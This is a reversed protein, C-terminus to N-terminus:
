RFRNNLYRTLMELTAREETGLADKAQVLGAYVRAAGEADNAAMKAKAEAVRWGGLEGSSAKVKQSVEKAVAGLLDMVVRRPALGDQLEDKPVTSPDFTAAFRQDFLVRDGSRLQVQLALDGGTKTPACAVVAGTVQVMPTPEAQSEVRASAAADLFTVGLEPTRDLYLSVRERAAQEVGRCREQLGPDRAIPAVYGRPAASLGLTRELSGIAAKAEANAPDLTLVRQYYVFAAGPRGGDAHSQASRLATSVLADRMLDMAAQAEPDNPSLELIDRYAASARVADDVSRAERAEQRLAQLHARKAVQLGAKALRSKSKTSAELFAARAKVWDGSQLSETGVQLPQAVDAPPAALSLATALRDAAVQFRGANAESEASALLTGFAEKLLKKKQAEFGPLEASFPELRALVVLAEAPDAVAKAQARAFLRSAEKSLVVPAVQVVPLAAGLQQAELLKAKAVGPKEDDLADVVAGMAKIADVAGDTHELCLRLEARAKDPMNRDSYAKVRDARLRASEARAKVAAAKADAPADPRNAVASYIEAAEEWKKFRALTEAQQLQELIPGAGRRASDMKRKLASSPRLKVAEEYAAYAGLTDGAALKADGTTELFRVRVDLYQAGSFAAHGPDVSRAAEYADHAQGWSRAESYMRALRLHYGVAGSRAERLSQQVVPDQPALKAVRETARYVDVPDAQRLKLEALAKRAGLREDEPTLGMAADWAKVAAGYDGRAEAAEAEEVRARVVETKASRLAEDYTANAPDRRHAEEFAAIAMSLEGRDRAKQGRSFAGRAQFSACGALNALALSAALATLTGLKM